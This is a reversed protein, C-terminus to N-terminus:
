TQWNIDFRPKSASMFSSTKPKEAQNPLNKWVKYNSFWPLLQVITFMHQVKFVQVRM